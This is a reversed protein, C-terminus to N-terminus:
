ILAIIEARKQTYEEDSILGTDHLKNLSLLRNELSVNCEQEALPASSLPTYAQLELTLRDLMAQINQVNKKASFLGPVKSNSSLKITCGAPTSLISISIIEGWTTMSGVTCAQIFGAEENYDKLAYDYGKEISAVMASFCAEKSYPFDATTDSSLISM